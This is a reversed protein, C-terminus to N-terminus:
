SVLPRTYAGAEYDMATSSEPADGEFTARTVVVRRPRARIAGGKVGIRATPTRSGLKPSWRVSACSASASHANM